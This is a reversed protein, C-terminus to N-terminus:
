WVKWLAEGKEWLSQLQNYERLTDMPQWYGDHRYVSLQEEKAMTGLPDKEWATSMGEIYDFVEPELVFFGGNVRGEAGLPKESFNSVIDGEIELCGFRAPPLVGSVTALTKQKKHFEVLQSINIDSVGDGYTLMFPENGIYPQVKKMRGGTQTNLGTDVLHVIWDSNSKSYITTEGTGLDVRFDSNLAYFNLFYEKIVESKYGLAIVFEKYGYSAYINMIHWLLPKGGIEIMPKPINDTLESIRTGFGGALIVTKM